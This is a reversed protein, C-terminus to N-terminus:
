LEGHRRMREHTELMDVAFEMERVAEETIRVVDRSNEVAEENRALEKRARELDRRHKSLRIRLLKSAETAYDSEEEDEAAEEKTEEEGFMKKLGVGAPNWTIPGTSTSPITHTHSPMTSMQELIKRRVEDDLSM